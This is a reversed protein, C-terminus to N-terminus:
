GQKRRNKRGARRKAFESYEKLSLGSWAAAHKRAESRKEEFSGFCPIWPYGERHAYYLGTDKDQSVVFFTM